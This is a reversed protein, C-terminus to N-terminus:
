QLDFSLIGSKLINRSTDRITLIVCNSKISSVDIFANNSVASENYLQIGSLTTLIVSYGAQIGTITLKRNGIVNWQPKIKLINKELTASGTNQNKAIDYRWQNGTFTILYCPTLAFPFWHKDKIKLLDIGFEDVMAQSNAMAAIAFGGVYSMPHSTTGQPSGTVTFGEGIKSIGFNYAFDSIKKCWLRAKENGNWLYDLCIRWPTRCADYKYDGVVIQGTTTQQNPVLGTTPNTGAYLITYTDDALQAWMTSDKVNGVVKAFERFAAPNYYSIDTKNCGGFDIGMQLVKLDGCTVIVKKLNELIAKAKEIYGGDPWQWSAVVLAFAADIEGDTAMGFDNGNCTGLWGMMGGALGNNCNKKYFKYLADFRERDGMFAFTWLGFGIAEAKGTTEASSKGHNDCTVYIAGDSCVTLASSVWREYESKLWDSSITKPIFGYPYKVNQPFPYKQAFNLEVLSLLLIASVIVCKM